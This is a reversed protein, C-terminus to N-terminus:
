PRDAAMPLDRRLTYSVERAPHKFVESRHWKVFRLDPPAYTAQPPRVTRSAYNLLLEDVQAQGSVDASVLITLSDSLGLAGADFAMHHFACLAIGNSVDDPGSHAHWKVHAAELGLLSDGLRGDYGCIACRREYARIVNERFRPDRHKRERDAGTGGEDPLGVASRIAQHQTHPWFGELLRSALDARLVADNVLANWLDGPVYGTVDDRRLTTRTPSAGGKKKPLRDAGDIKWFGDHQLHWFPFEPHYAKRSPGFERLLKELPQEVDTFHLTNEEGADARAILLLSLLPKHPARKGGRKWTHLDSLASRWTDAARTQNKRNSM